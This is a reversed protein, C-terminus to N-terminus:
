KSTGNFHGYIFVSVQEANFNEPLHKHNIKISAPDALHISKSKRCVVIARQGNQPLMYCAGHGPIDLSEIEENDLLLRINRYVTAIGLGPAIQSARDRLQKPTLPHQAEQLASLIATRQKTDRFNKPM